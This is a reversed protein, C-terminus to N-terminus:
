QAVTDHFVCATISLISSDARIPRLAAGVAYLSLLPLTQATTDVRTQMSARPAWLRCCLLPCVVLRRTDKLLCPQMLSKKLYERKKRTRRCM